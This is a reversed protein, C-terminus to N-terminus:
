LIITKISRKRVSFFLGAGIYLAKQLMNIFSNAHKRTLIGVMLIFLLCDIAIEETVALRQLTDLAFRWEKRYLDSYAAAIASARNKADDTSKFHTMIFM